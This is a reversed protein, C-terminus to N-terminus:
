LIQECSEGRGGGSLTAGRRASAMIAEVCCSSGTCKADGNTFEWGCTADKDEEPDPCACVATASTAGNPGTRLLLWAADPAVRLTNRGTARLGSPGYSVGRGVNESTVRDLRLYTLIGCCAAGSCTISGDNNNIWYCTEDGCMCGILSLVAGSGKHIISARRPSDGELKLEFGDQPKVDGGDHVITQALIAQEGATLSRGQAELVSSGLFVLLLAGLTSRYANALPACRLTDM